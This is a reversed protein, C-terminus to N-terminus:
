EKLRVLMMWRIAEHKAHPHHDRPPFSSGKEAVIEKECVKCVYVGSHTVTDRPRFETSWIENAMTGADFAGRKDTAYFAM